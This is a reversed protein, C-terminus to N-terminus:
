IVMMTGRHPNDDSPELRVSVGGGGGSGGCEWSVVCVQKGKVSGSVFLAAESSQVAILSGRAGCIVQARACFDICNSISRDCETSRKCVSNQRRVLEVRM